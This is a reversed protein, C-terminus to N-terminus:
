LDITGNSDGVTETNVGMKQVLTLLLNGMPTGAKGANYSPYVLHRGGKV